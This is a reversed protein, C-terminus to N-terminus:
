HKQLLVKEQTWNLAAYHPPRFAQHPKGQRYADVAIALLEVDFEEQEAASRKLRLEKTSDKKDDNIAKNAAQLDTRKAELKAKDASLQKRRRVDEAQWNALLNAYTTEYTRYDAMARDHEDRLRRYIRDQERDIEAQPRRVQRSVPIRVSQGNQQVYDYDTITEFEDVPIFRAAPLPPPPSRKPGPHGPTPKAMDSTIRNIDRTLQRIDRTNQEEQERTNRIVEGTLEKQELLENAKQKLAAQRQELNAVVTDFGEKDIRELNAVLAETRENSEEFAALYSTAVGRTKALTIQDSGIQLVRASIPSQARKVGLMGVVTGIAAANLKLDIPDSQEAIVLRVIDKFAADAAAADERVLATVLNLRLVAGRRLTLSSSPYITNLRKLTNDAASYDEQRLQCMALTILAEAPPPVTRDGDLSPRLKDIAATLDAQSSSDMLRLADHWTGRTDQAYIAALGFLVYIGSTFLTRTSGTVM